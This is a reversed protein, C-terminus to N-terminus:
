TRVSPIAMPMKLAPVLRATRIGIVDAAVADVGAGAVGAAAVGIVTGAAM